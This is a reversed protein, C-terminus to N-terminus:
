LSEVVPLEPDGTARDLSSIACLLKRIDIAASAASGVTGLGAGAGAGKDFESRIAANSFMMCFYGLSYYIM